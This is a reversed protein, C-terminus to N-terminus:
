VSEQTSRTRDYSQRARVSFETFWVPSAFWKHNFNIQRRRNRGDYGAEPLSFGGVGSGTQFRQETWYRVSFVHKDGQYRKLRASFETGREPNPFNGQVLGDLTRAFVVAERDAEDREASLLFTTKGSRGLGGTLHGELRRRQWKPREAAFANRADMRYDRLLFNFTGHFDSSGQKTIIEVRRSGPGSYEASYPNKNIRVEAIASPTVGVGDTEMGDVILTVGESGMAGGDLFDALAAVVDQDMLPLSELIEADLRIADLNEAPDTSLRGEGGAILTVESRVGALKLRIEVATPGDRVVVDRRVPVFGERFIELFYKGEPLKRFRFSGKRDSTARKRLEVRGEKSRTLTVKAGPVLLGTPDRVVGTVQHRSVNLQNGQAPSLIAAVSLLALPLLM